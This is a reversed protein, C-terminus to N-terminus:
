RARASKGKPRRKRLAEPLISAPLGHLSAEERLERQYQVHLPHIGVPMHPKVEKFRYLTVAVKPLSASALQRAPIRVDFDYTKLAYIHHRRQEPPGNPNVFSRFVGLDPISDLHLRSDGETIEYVFNGHITSPQLLESDVYHSEVVSTEGDEAVHIRLRVYGEAATTRKLGSQDPLWQPAKKQPAATKAGKAKLRLKGRVRQPRPAKKTKAVGTRKLPTVPADAAPKQPLPKEPM